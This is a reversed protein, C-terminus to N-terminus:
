NNMTLNEIEELSSRTESIARDIRQNIDEEKKKITATLDRYKEGLDELEQYRKEVESRFSIAKNTQFIRVSVLFMTM